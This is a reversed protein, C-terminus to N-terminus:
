FKGELLDAGDCAIFCQTDPSKRYGYRYDYFLVFESTDYAEFVPSQFIM